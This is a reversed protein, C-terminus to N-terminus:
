FSLIHQCCCHGNAICAETSALSDLCFIACRNPYWDIGLARIYRDPLLAWLVYAIYLVFTSTFAVFGYFEPARSHTSSNPPPFRALPQTPSTPQDATMAPPPVIALFRLGVYLRCNDKAMMNDHFVLKEIQETETDVV